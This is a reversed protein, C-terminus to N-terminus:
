RLIAGIRAFRILQIPFFRYSCRRLIGAGCIAGKGSANVTGKYLMRNELVYNKTDLVLVRMEEHDLFAM